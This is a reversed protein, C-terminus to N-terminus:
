SVKEMIVKLQDGEKQFYNNGLFINRTKSFFMKNPVDSELKLKEKRLNHNLTQFNLDESDEEIEEIEEDNLTM